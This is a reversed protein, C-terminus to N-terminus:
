YRVDLTKRVLEGEFGRSLLFRSIKGARTFRNTDKVEKRKQQALHELLALYEDEPIEELAEAILANPIGKARLGHAIKVRGWKSQRFKGRVYSRAYREENLFGQTVLQGLIQEQAVEILGWEKMKALCDAMCRDDTACWRELRAQAEDVTSPKSSQM